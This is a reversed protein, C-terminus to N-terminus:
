MGENLINAVFDDLNGGTFLYSKVGAARAAILDSDRDGIMFSKSADTPFDTLARLLMGPSPKRDPHDRRYEILTADPHYPCFYFSAIQAGRREIEARMWKHLAQVDSENYFGRGIGSQNTVVVIRFGAEHLRRLADFAGDIWEIQDPRYPYGVDRNLVGDRDLLAMPRVAAHSLVATM